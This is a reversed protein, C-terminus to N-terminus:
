RSLTGCWRVFALVKWAGNSRGTGDQSSLFHHGGMWNKPTTPLISDPLLAIRSPNKLDLLM